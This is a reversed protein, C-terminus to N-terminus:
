YLVVSLMLVTSSSYTHCMVLLFGATVEDVVIARCIYRYITSSSYFLCLVEQMVVAVAVSCIQQRGVEWEASAESAQIDLPRPSPTTNISNNPEITEHQGRKRKLSRSVRMTSSQTLFCASSSFQLMFAFVICATPKM